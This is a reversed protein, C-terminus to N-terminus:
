ESMTLDYMKKMESGLTSLGHNEKVTQQAILAISKNELITNNCFKSM